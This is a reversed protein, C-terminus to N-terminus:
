PQVHYSKTGVSVMLVHSHVNIVDRKIQNFKNEFM